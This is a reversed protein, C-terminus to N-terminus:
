TRYINCTSDMDYRSYMDYISYISYTDYRSYIYCTSYLDNTRNINTYTSYTIHIGYKSYKSYAIRAEAPSTDFDTTLGGIGAGRDWLFLRIVLPDDSLSLEDVDGVPWVAEM